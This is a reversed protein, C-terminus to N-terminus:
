QTCDAADGVTVANHGSCIMTIPAQTPPQNPSVTPPAAAVCRGNARCEGSDIDFLLNSGCSLATRQGNACIYFGNCTTPNQIHQIGYPSCGTCDVNQPQDCIQTRANFHYNPPCYGDWANRGDCYFYAQCSASNRVFNGAAVGSCATSQQAM